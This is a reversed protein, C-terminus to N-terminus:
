IFIDNNDWIFVEVDNEFPLIQKEQQEHDIKKRKYAFRVPSPSAKEGTKVLKSNIRVFKDKVELACDGCGVGAQNARECSYPKGGIGLERRKVWDDIHSQTRDPSYDNCNGLIAHLYFEAEKNITLISCLFLREEHTLDHEKESKEWLRGIASCKEFIEPNFVTDYNEDDFSLSTGFQNFKQIRQDVSLKQKTEQRYQWERFWENASICFEQNPTSVEFRAQKACEQINAMPSLLESFSLPIKYLGTSQHQSHPLRWMRRLDYVSFDFCEIKLEDKIQNAIYRFLTPLDNSAGIGLAIAECEVHFGKKGTFYIRVAEEPMYKLLYSVLSVADSRAKESDQHDIDFYLSGLRSAKSLDTDDYHFVSTYLGVNNNQTRFHEIDKPSFIKSTTKNQMIRVVRDLNPVFRAFEIYKFRSTFKGDEPLWM